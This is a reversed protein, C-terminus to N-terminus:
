LHFNVSKDILLIIIFHYMLAHSKYYTYIYLSDYCSFKRFCKKSIVTTGFTGGPPGVKQRTKLTLGSVRRRWRALRGHGNKMKGGFIRKKLADFDHNKM